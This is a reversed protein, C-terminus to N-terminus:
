APGDDVLQLRTRTRRRPRAPAAQAPAAADLKWNLRALGPASLGLEGRLHRLEVAARVEGSEVQAFLRCYLAVSPGLRLREWEVAQPLSWCEAWLEAERDTPDPLPWLPPEGDRGEAPLTVWQGAQTPRRKLRLADPDPAPGRTGM